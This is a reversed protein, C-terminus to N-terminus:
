PTVALIPEESVVSDTVAVNESATTVMDMTTADTTIATEVPISETTNSITQEIIEVIKKKM